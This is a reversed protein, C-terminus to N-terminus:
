KNLKYEPDFAKYLIRCDESAEVPVTNFHETDKYVTLIPQNDLDYALEYGCYKTAMGASKKNTAEVFSAKYGRHMADEECVKVLSIAIEKRCKELKVGIMFLHLIENPEIVEKVNEYYTNIFREDLEMLLDIIKNMPELGGSFVPAEENPNFDECAVVGLVEETDRDMAVYCCGQGVVAKMYEHVFITFNECTMGAARTMPESVYADKVHVGAFTSALCKSAEEILETEEERIVKYIIHRDLAAIFEERLAERQRLTTEM